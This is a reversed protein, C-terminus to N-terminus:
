RTIPVILQLLFYGWKELSSPPSQFLVNLRCQFSHQKELSNRSISSSCPTTLCRDDHKYVSAELHTIMYPQIGLSPSVATEVFEM